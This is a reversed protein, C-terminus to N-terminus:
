VNVKINSVLTKQPKLEQNKFHLVNIFDHLFVKYLGRM